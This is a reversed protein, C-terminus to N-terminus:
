LEINEKNYKESNEILKLTFDIIEERTYGSNRIIEEERKIGEDRLEEAIKQGKDTLSIKNQRRNDNDEIRKIYQNDELKRLIRTLQGNDIQLHKSIDKQYVYGHDLLKFLIPLQQASINHDKLYANYYSNQSKLYMMFLLSLTLNDKDIPCKM